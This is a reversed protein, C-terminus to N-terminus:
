KRFIIEQLIKKYDISFAATLFKDSLLTAAPVIWTGMHERGSQICWISSLAGIAISCICSAIAQMFTIKKGSIINYSFKLMLGLIIYIFWLWTKSFFNVLEGKIDGM